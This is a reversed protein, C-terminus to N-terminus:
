HSDLARKVVVQILVYSTLAFILTGLIRNSLYALLGLAILSLVLRSSPHLKLDVTKTKFNEWSLNVVGIVLSFYTLIALDNAFTEFRLMLPLLTMILSCIALFIFKQGISFNNFTREFAVEANLAKVNLSYSFLALRRLFFNKPLNSLDVHAGFDLLGYVGVSFFSASLLTAFISTSAKVYIIIFAKPPAELGSPEAQLELVYYGPPIFEPLRVEVAEAPYTRMREFKEPLFVKTSSGEMSHVPAELFSISKVTLSFNVQYISFERQNAVDIHFTATEGPMYSPELSSFIVTLDEGYVTESPKERVDSFLNSFLSLYYSSVYVLISALSGLLIALLLMNIIRLSKSRNYM